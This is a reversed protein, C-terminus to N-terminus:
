YLSVVHKICGFYELLRIQKQQSRVTRIRGTPEMKFCYRGIRGIRDVYAVSRVIFLVTGPSGLRRALDLPGYRPDLKASRAKTSSRGTEMRGNGPQILRQVAFTLVSLVFAKEIVKSEVAGSSNVLIWGVSFVGDNLSLASKQLKPM